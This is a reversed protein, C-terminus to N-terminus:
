YSPLIKGRQSCYPVPVTNYSRRWFVSMGLDTTSINNSTVPMVHYGYVGEPPHGGATHGEPRLRNLVNFLTKNPSLNLAVERDLGQETQSCSFGPASRPSDSLVTLTCFSEWSPPQSGLGRPLNKGELWREDQILSDSKITTHVNLMNCHKYKSSYLM